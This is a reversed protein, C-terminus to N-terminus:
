RERRSGSRQSTSPSARRGDAAARRAARRPRRRRARLDGGDLDLDTEVATELGRPDIGRARDRLLRASRGPCCRASGRRGDLAALEGVTTSAPRRAAAGRRAARRGPAAPRRVARPVRGRAGPPVVTLGGPKRRDSAVKAVVKSTRSASRARCARRAACPRRCRRPSRRAGRPLRRAIEGLDLYGEDIGPGSSRRARGRARGDLRGALVRPLALPAAPRLRRAPLPPAGRRGSM